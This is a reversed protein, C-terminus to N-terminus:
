GSFMPDQPPGIDGESDGRDEFIPATKLAEEVYANWYWTDDASPDMVNSALDNIDTGISPFMASNWTTPNAVHQPVPEHLWLDAGIAELQRPRGAQLSRSPGSRAGFHPTIPQAPSSSGRSAETMSELSSAPPAALGPNMESSAQNNGLVTFQTNGAYTSPPVPVDSTTASSPDLSNTPLSRTTSGRPPTGLQLPSAQHIERLFRTIAEQQAEQQLLLADELSLQGDLGLRNRVLPFIAEMNQSSFHQLQGLYEAAPGDYYPSVSRLNAANAFCSDYVKHWYTERSTGVPNKKDLELHKRLDAGIKERYLPPDLTTCQPESRQHTVYEDELKFEQFCRFCYYQPLCHHLKLHQKLHAVKVSAWTTCAHYRPDTSDTGFMRCDYKNFPCALTRSCATELQLTTKGARRKRFDGGDDDGDNAFPRKGTQLGHRDRAINAAFSAADQKTAGRSGEGSPHSIIGDFGDSSLFARVIVLSVVAVLRQQIASLDHESQDPSSTLSSTGGVDSPCEPKHVTEPAKGLLFSLTPPTHSQQFLRQRVPQPESSNVGPKPSHGFGKSYQLGSPGKKVRKPDQVVGKGRIEAHDPNARKRRPLFPPASSYEEFHGAHPVRPALDPKTYRALNPARRLPPTQETQQEQLTKQPHESNNEIAQSWSPEQVPSAFDPYTQQLSSMPLEQSLDLPTAPGFQTDHFAYSSFNLSGSQGVWDLVAKNSGKIEDSRNSPHDHTIQVEDHWTIYPSREDLDLYQLLETENKSRMSKRMYAYVDGKTINKNNFCVTRPTGALEAENILHLIHAADKKTWHKRFEWRSLQDKWQKKRGRTLFSRTEM